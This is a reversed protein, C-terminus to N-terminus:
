FKLLKKFRNQGMKKKKLITKTNEYEKFVGLKVKRCRTKGCYFIEDIKQFKSHEKFLNQGMNKKRAITRTYQRQRFVGLNTNRLRTM